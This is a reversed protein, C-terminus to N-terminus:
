FLRHSIHDILDQVTDIEDLDNGGLYAAEGFHEELDLGVAILELSDIHLSDLTDTLHIDQEHCGATNALVAVVTERVTHM